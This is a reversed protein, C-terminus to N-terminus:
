TGYCNHLGLEVDEDVQAIQRVIYNTCYSKVDGKWWPKYWALGPAAESDDVYLAEWFSTDCALDIQIALDEHPIKDQIARMAHFLREEYIPEVRPQFARQAFLVVSAITPLSVQFKVGKPIVGEERLQRFVAYSEIAATDYGTEFNAKRCAEIGEDIQEPTFEDSDLMSNLEFRIMMPPYVSFLQGQFVTFYHRPGTEGDPIRRLRGPVCALCEKFVSATDERPVSGVLHTGTVGTM